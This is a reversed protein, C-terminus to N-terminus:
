LLAATLAPVSQQIDGPVMFDKDSIYSPKQLDLAILTGEPNKKKYHALFGCDDNSLGICVIYDIEQLDHPSISRVIESHPSLPSSGAKHHLLDINETLICINRKQTLRHLATHAPTPHARVAATCFKMFAANLNEPHLFLETLFVRTGEPLRLSKELEKMTPVHSSASIGAGTYVIFCKDKILVCLETVTLKQPLSNPCRLPNAFYYDTKRPMHSAIKLLSPSGTPYTKM